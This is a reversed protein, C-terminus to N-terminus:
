GFVTITQHSKAIIDGAKNWIYADTYGYGGKAYSADCQYAFWDNPKCSVDTNVFEIYWSMTSLPAPNDLQQAVTPPWTDVLCIIHANTITRPEDKFRMWGHTHSDKSGSFPLGSQQFDMDFNRVFNPVMAGDPANMIESDPKAMNHTPLKNLAIKSDRKAGYSVQQLVAVQGNQIAKSQLQVVNKGERLVDVEVEFPVDALLPGIFSTYVSHLSKDDSVKQETAALLLGASLGGFGTRGQTWQETFEPKASKGESAVYAKTVDILEDFTM